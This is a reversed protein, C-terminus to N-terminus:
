NQKQKIEEQNKVIKYFRDKCLVFFLVIGFISYMINFISNYMNLTKDSFNIGVSILINIGLDRFLQFPVYLVIVVLAILVLRWVLEGLESTNRSTLYEKVDKFFTKFTKVDKKVMEKSEEIINEEKNIKPMEINDNM